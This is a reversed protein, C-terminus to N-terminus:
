DEYTTQDRLAEFATNMQTLVTQNQMLVALNGTVLMKGSGFASMADLDGRNMAAADAYTATMTADPAPLEGLTMEFVGDSVKFYHLIDEGGPAATVVQQVGFDASGAAIAKLDENAALNESVAQFWDSRLFKVDGGEWGRV